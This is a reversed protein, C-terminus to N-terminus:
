LIVVGSGGAFGNYAGGSGDSGGGKFHHLVMFNASTGGTPQVSFIVGHDDNGGKQTMGLMIPNGGPSPGWTLSGQPNSGENTGFYHLLTPVSPPSQYFIAGGPHSTGSSTMGYFTTLDSSFLLTGTPDLGVNYLSETVVSCSLSNTTLFTCIQGNLSPIGKATFYINGGSDFSLGSQATSRDTANSQLISFSNMNKSFNFLNGHDDMGYLVQGDASLVLDASPSDCSGTGQCSYLETYASDM